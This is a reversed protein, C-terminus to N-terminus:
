LLPKLRKDAIARDLRYQIDRYDNESGGDARTSLYQTCATIYEETVDSRIRSLQLLTRLLSYDTLM